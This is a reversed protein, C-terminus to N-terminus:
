ADVRIQEEREPSTRRVEDYLRGFRRQECANGGDRWRRLLSSKSVLPDRRLQSSIFRTIEEDTSAQREHRIPRPRAMQEALLERVADIECAEPGLARLVAEAVRQNLSQDNAEVFPAPGERLRRDFDPAVDAVTPHRPTGSCYVVTPKRDIAAALDDGLADIYVASAAVILRDVSGALETLPGASGQHANVERWWARNEETPDTSGEPPVSDPNRPLFTASYNAIRDTPRVAGHGASVILPEARLGLQRPTLMLADSAAWGVGKYLRAAPTVRTTSRLAAMWHRTREGRDHADFDRLRVPPASARKSDTCPVVIGIRL